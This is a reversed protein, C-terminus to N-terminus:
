LEVNFPYNVKLQQDGNVEMSKWQSGNVEDRTLFYIRGRTTHNIEECKQGDYFFNLDPEIKPMKADTAHM